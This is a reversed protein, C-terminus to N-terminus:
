KGLNNKPFLVDDQVVLVGRKLEQRGKEKGEQEYFQDAVGVACRLLSAQYRHIDDQVLHVVDADDWIEGPTQTGNAGPGKLNQHATLVQGLNLVSVGIVQPCLQYAVRVGLQHQAARVIHRRLIEAGPAAVHRHLDVGNHRVPLADGDGLNDGLVSIGLTESAAPQECRVLYKPQGVVLQQDNDAPLLNKSRLLEIVSAM